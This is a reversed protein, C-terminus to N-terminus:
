VETQPLDTEIIEKAFPNKGENWEPFNPDVYFYPQSFVKPKQERCRCLTVFNEYLVEPITFNDIFSCFITTLHFIALKRLRQLFKKHLSLNKEFIKLKKAFFYGDECKVPMSRVASAMWRALLCFCSSFKAFTSNMSISARFNGSLQVDVKSQTEM